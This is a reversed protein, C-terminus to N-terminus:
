MIVGISTKATDPQEHTSVCIASLTM